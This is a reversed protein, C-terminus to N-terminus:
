LAWASIALPSRRNHAPPANERREDGRGARWFCRRRRRGSCNRAARDGDGGRCARRRDPRVGFSAALPLGVKMAPVSPSSSRTTAPLDLDDAARKGPPPPRRRRDVHRRPRAAHGTFGTNYPPGGVGHDRRERCLQRESSLSLRPDVTVCQLAGARLEDRQHGLCSGEGVRAEHQVRACPGPRRRILAMGWPSRSRWRRHMRSWRLRCSAAPAVPKVGWSLWAGGCSRRRCM